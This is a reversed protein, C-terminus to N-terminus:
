SAGLIRTAFEVLSQARRMAVKLDNLSIHIMGYQATDKLSLLELLDGAAKDGGEIQRLFEAAKRHDDGRSRIHLKFCCVADSAAIGALVAMSAAVSGSEGIGELAEGELLDASELYKRASKLRIRAEPKGCTGSRGLKAASM